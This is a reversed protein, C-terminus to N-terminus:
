SNGVSENWGGRSVSEYMYVEGGGGGELSEGTGTSQAYFVLKSVGWYM